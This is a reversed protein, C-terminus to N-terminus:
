LNIKINYWEKASKNAHVFCQTLTTIKNNCRRPLYTPVYIYEHTTQL